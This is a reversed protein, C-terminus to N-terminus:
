NVRRLETADSGYYVYINDNDIIEVTFSVTNAFLFDTCDLRWKENEQYLAYTDSSSYFNCHVGDFIVIAGPQAQGFGYDGVSKWKGEIVFDSFFTINETDDNMEHEDPETEALTDEELIDEILQEGGCTLQIFGSDEEVNNLAEKYTGMLHNEFDKLPNIGAEKHHISYLETHGFKSNISSVDTYNLNGYPGYSDYYNYVNHINEYGDSVNDEKTLVEIAGFTYAYIDEKDVADSWWGGWEAFRTFRAATMNAAAGGLSHGTVLIKLEDTNELEPYKELYENLGNWVLEEFEYVNNWVKQDLFDQPPGKFLDGIGENITQTGRAVIVLVMTDVGDMYLLDHGIAFASDGGYNYIEYDPIGYEDFLKKIGEGTSDETKESMEAAVLALQNNYQTSPSDFLASCWASGNGTYIDDETTNESEVNNDIAITESSNFEILNNESSCSCLLCVTLLGICFIFMKKRM